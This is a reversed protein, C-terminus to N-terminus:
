ITKKQAEQDELVVKAQVKGGQEIEGREDEALAIGEEIVDVWAASFMMRWNNKAFKLMKLGAPALFSVVIFEFDIPYDKWTTTSWWVAPLAGALGYGGAWTIGIIFEALNRQWARDATRSIRIQTM